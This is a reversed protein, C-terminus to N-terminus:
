GKKPKAPKKAKDADKDVLDVKAAEPKFKVTRPPAVGFASAWTTALRRAESSTLAVSSRVGTRAVQQWGSSQEPRPVLM